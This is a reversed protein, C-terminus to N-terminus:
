PCRGVLGRGPQRSTLRPDDWTWRRGDHTPHRPGTAAALRRRLSGTEKWTPAVRDAGSSPSEAATLDVTGTEDPHEEDRCVDPVFPAPRKWLTEGDAALLELELGAAKGLELARANPPFAAERRPTVFHIRATGQTLNVPAVVHISASPIMADPGEGGAVKTTAAPISGSASTTGGGPAAGPAPPPTPPLADEILLRDRIGIYTFDSPWQYECYTMIDHWATAPMRGCPFRTPRMEWTSAWSATITTTCNDTPIRTLFSAAAPARLLQRARASSHARLEHGGYWDGYSGDTDWAFPGRPVGTPGSAAVSPDATGPIDSALGQLFRRGGDDAVLGYYHTRADTGSALDAVRLARLYDNVDKAVFAWSEPFDVTVQSWIM